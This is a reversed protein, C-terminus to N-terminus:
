IASRVDTNAFDGGKYLLPADLSKALAYAMCDGYNLQAPRGGFQHLAHTAIAVLEPTFAVIELPQAGLLQRARGQGLDGFRKWAVLMFEFATPSGVLTRRSEIIVERMHAADDEDDYIAYLASTDVVIM